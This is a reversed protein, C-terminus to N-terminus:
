IIYLWDQYTLFGLKEGFQGYKLIQNFDSM